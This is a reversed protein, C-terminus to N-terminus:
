WDKKKFMAFVFNNLSYDIYFLYNNISIPEIPYYCQATGSMLARGKLTIDGVNGYVETWYGCPGCSYFGVVGINVEIDDFKEIINKNLPALIEWGHMLPNPHTIYGKRGGLPDRKQHVWSYSICTMFKYDINDLKIIDGISKVKLDMERFDQRTM